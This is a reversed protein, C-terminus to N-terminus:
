RDRLGVRVDRPERLDRRARRADLKVEGKAIADAFTTEGALVSLFRARTLTLAARATPEHRGRVSWLTRNSLGLMWREDPDTFTFNLALALGGVAEARLRIAIADFAQEITLAAVLGARGIPRAPPLGHRLERAGMLYANRFTASETQYGLQELADAQLERAAHNQPEAFVLHNVVEAVWRYDGAEFSARARAARGRRGAERLFHEPALIRCRGAAVDEASTVGLAGGFHEGHSRTYIVAVVPRAGLHENALALCARACAASTLPDIM